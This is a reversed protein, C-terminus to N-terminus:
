TLRPLVVCLFHTTIRRARCHRTALTRGLFADGPPCHSAAYPLLSARALMQLTGPINDFMSDSLNM